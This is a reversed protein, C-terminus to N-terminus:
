GFHEMDSLIYKQNRKTGKKVWINQAIAKSEEFHKETQGKSDNQRVFM